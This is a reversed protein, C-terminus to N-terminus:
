MSRHLQCPFDVQVLGDEIGIRYLHSAAACALIATVVVAAIKLGRVFFLALPHPRIVTATATTKTATTTTTTTTMITSHSRPLRGPPCARFCRIIAARRRTDRSM